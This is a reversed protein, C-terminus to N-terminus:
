KTSPRMSSTILTAPCRSPVRSISSGHLRVRTDRFDGDDPNGVRDPRDTANATLFGADTAVGARHGRHTLLDGVRDIAFRAM